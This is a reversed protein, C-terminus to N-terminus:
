KCIYVEPLDAVLMVLDQLIDLVTYELIIVLIHLEDLHRQLLNWEERVQRVSVGDQIVDDVANRGALIVMAMLEHGLAFLKM